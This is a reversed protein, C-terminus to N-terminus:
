SGTSTTSSWRVTAREGSVERLRREKLERAPVMGRDRRHVESLVPLKLRGAGAATENWPSRWPHVPPHGSTIAAPPQHIKANPNCSGPPTTSSPMPRSPGPGMLLYLPASRHQRASPLGAAGAGHCIGSLTKARGTAPHERIAGAVIETCIPTSPRLAGSSRRGPLYLPHLRGKMGEKQAKLAGGGPVCRAVKSFFLIELDRGSRSSWLVSYPTEATGPLRLEGRRELAEDGSRTPSSPSWRSCPSPGSLGNEGEAHPIGQGNCQV